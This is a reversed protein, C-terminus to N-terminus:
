VEPWFYQACFIDLLQETNLCHYHNLFSVNSHINHRSTAFERIFLVIKFTLSNNTLFISIVILDKKHELMATVGGSFINTKEIHSFIISLFM